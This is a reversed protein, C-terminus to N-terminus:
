KRGREEHLMEMFPNSTNFGTDRNSGQQYNSRRAGWGERIAKRVVINWDKWKNKNGTSQASEDVYAIAFEVKDKGYESIM